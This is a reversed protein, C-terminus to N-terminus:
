SRTGDAVVKGARLVIRAAPRRALADALSTAKVLAVDAADGVQLEGRGASLGALLQIPNDVQAALSALFADELPDADGYPYFSDRVNDSGFWVSVGAAILEKILTVGRRRPTEESRDQLYLNTGPLAIVVTVAATALGRALERAEERPLTALTCIHSVAVRRELGRAIIGDIVISLLSDGPTGHEDLHFDISVGEARALDLAAM